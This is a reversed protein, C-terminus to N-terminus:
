RTGARGDSVKPHVDRWGTRVALFCWVPILWMYGLLRGFWILLTAVLSLMTVSFKVQRAQATIEEARVDLTVTTMM